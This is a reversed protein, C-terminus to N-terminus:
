GPCPVVFAVFRADGEKHQCDVDLCQQHLWCQATPNNHFVRLLRRGRKIRGTLPQVRDSGWQLDQLDSHFFHLRQQAAPDNHFVHFWWQATPDNHFIMFDDNPQQTRASSMFDDSPHQTMISSMFNDGPHQPWQQFGSTLLGMFQATPDNCFICSQSSLSRSM